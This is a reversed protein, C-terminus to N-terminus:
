DVDIPIMKADNPSLLDEDVPETYDEFLTVNKPVYKQVINVLNRLEANAEKMEEAHQKKIQAIEEQHDQKQYLYDHYRTGLFTIVICLSLILLWIINAKIKTYDYRFPETAPNTM